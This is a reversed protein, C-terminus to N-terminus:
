AQYFLFVLMSRTLSSCGVSCRWVQRNNAFIVLSLPGRPGTFPGRPEKIPGFALTRRFIGKQNKAVGDHLLHFFPPVRVTLILLVM